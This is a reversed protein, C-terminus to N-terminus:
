CLTSNDDFNVLLQKLLFNSM